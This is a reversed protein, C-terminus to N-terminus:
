RSCIFDTLSHNPPIKRTYLSVEDIQTSYYQEIDRLIKVDENTVFQFACFCDLKAYRMLM